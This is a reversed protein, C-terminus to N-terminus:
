VFAAAEGVAVSGTGKTMCRFSKKKVFFVYKTNLVQFKAVRRVSSLFVWAGIQGDGDECVM